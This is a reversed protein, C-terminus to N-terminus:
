WALGPFAGARQVYATAAAQTLLRDRVLTTVDRQVCSVFVQRSVPQNGRVLGLRQWERSVSPMADRVGDGNVDVLAGQSNVPEDTTGDFPLYGTQQASGAPGPWPYRFGTPCALEPLRLQDAQSADGPPGAIGAPPQVGRVVWDQLVPIAAQILSGM